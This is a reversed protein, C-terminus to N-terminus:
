GLKSFIKGLISTQQVKAQLIRLSRLVFLLMDHNSINTVNCKRVNLKYSYNGVNGSHISKIFGPTRLTVQATNNCLQQVILTPDWVEMCQRHRIKCLICQGKKWQCIRHGNSIELAYINAHCCLRCTLLLNGGDMVATCSEVALRQSSRCM